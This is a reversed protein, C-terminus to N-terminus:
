NAAVDHGSRRTRFDARSIGSSGIPKGRRVAFRCMQKVNQRSFLALCVERGRLWLLKLGPLLEIGGTHLTGSPLLGFLDQHCEVDTGSCKRPLIRLNTRTM